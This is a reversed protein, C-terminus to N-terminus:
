GWFIECKPLYTLLKNVRSRTIGSNGGLELNRLKTLGKLASIDSILNDSLILYTLNTLRRIASIDRISNNQLDLTTLNVLGSLASIDSISNNGLYLHTLKSLKHIERIDYIKRNGLDVRITNIGFYEGAIKVTIHPTPSAHMRPAPSSTMSTQSQQKSPPPMSQPTPLPAMPQTPLFPQVFGLSKSEAETEQKIPMLPFEVQAALHRDDAECYPCQSLSKYYQHKANNPCQALENILFHSLAHYWYEASPRRKPELRGDIFAKDFLALLEPPLSKAHLCFEASPRNGDRFVYANREIAENGLFPSATSGSADSKVGLFPHTGNMLLKFIHVALCFLDSEKTFTPLPVKDLNFARGGARERNCHDIIEPALYGPMIVNSRFAYGDNKTLHFSDCDVFYIQGTNYNVGVNRHNFDGFVDGMRHLEHIASCLNIAISIRSRVSPFSAYEAADLVPHRYSYVRQIHEHMDLKPMTFGIVSGNESVFEVPWAIVKKEILKTPPNNLMFTLKSILEPTVVPDGSSDEHKFIKMLLNADENVEHIYGEGGDILLRGKTYPM